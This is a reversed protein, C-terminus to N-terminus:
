KVLYYDKTDESVASNGFTLLEANQIDAPKTDDNDGKGGDPNPTGELLEKEKKSVAKAERDAIIKGLLDADFKGSNISEILTEAEEDIIGQKALGARLSMNKNELIQKENEKKLDDIEKQLKEVESMGEIQKEEIQKRLNVVEEAESKYKDARDKEKKTEGNLQNLYNTIQEDTPEAIGITVLNQKAQERNM